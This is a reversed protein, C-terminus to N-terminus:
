GASPADLLLVRVREGPAVPPCDSALRILANTGALAFTDGSSSWRKPLSLLRGERVEVTAPCFTERPNGRLNDGGGLEMDIFSWETGLGQLCEVALAIAVQYCVFHSVPNGPIVFAVKPGRTAFILPKGPRLNVQEFHIEFGLERLVRAGYDYDGVSAGGSILLLDAPERSPDLMSGCLNVLKSFNDGCRVSNWPLAKCRSLLGRLLSTNSDRIKGPGPTEAPDVLEDGTVVHAIRLTPTVLPEVAGVQALIALEPGGLRTGARLLVDGAGAEAGRARVFRPGDRQRPKMTSGARDADEQPIVQSAGGPLAAGTFIRACEGRQLDREPLTGAAIEMVVEFQESTDEAGIAYGDMMARDVPPYASDAVIDERLVSGVNGFIKNRVSEVPAVKATIIQRAEELSIMGTRQQFVRDKALAFSERRGFAQLRAQVFGRSM